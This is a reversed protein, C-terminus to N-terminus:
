QKMHDPLPEPEFPEIRSAILAFRPQGNHVKHSIRGNVNVLDGKHFSGLALPATRDGEHSTFAKLDLWLSPRYSGNADRGQGLAARSHGWLMGHKSVCTEPDEGLRLTLLLFNRTRGDEPVPETRHLFLVLGNATGESGPHEEYALRGVM